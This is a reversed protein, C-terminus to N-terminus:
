TRPALAQIRRRVEARLADVDLGLYDEPEWPSGFHVTIARLGGLPHFPTTKSSVAQMNEIFIPVIPVRAERAVYYIGAQCEQVNRGDGRTGEPFVILNFDVASCGFSALQRIMDKSLRERDILFGLKASLARRVWTRRWVAKDGLVLIPMRASAWLIGGLVLTDLLSVHNCVFLYRRRPLARLGVTRKQYPFCILVRCLAGLLAQVLRTSADPQRRELRARESTATKM